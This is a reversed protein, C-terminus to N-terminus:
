IDLKIPSLQIKRKKKETETPETYQKTTNHPNDLRMYLILQFLSSHKQLRKLYHTNKPVVCFNCPTTNLLNAATSDSINDPLKEYKTVNSDM